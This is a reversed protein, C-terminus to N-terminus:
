IFPLTPIENDLWEIFFVSVFQLYLFVALLEKTHFLLSNTLIVMPTMWTSHTDVLMQDLKVINLHKPKLSSGIKFEAVAADFFPTCKLLEVKKSDHYRQNKLQIM